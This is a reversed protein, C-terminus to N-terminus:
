VGELKDLVVSMKLYLEKINAFDRKLSFNQIGAKEEDAIIQSLRQILNEVYEMHDRLKEAEGYEGAKLMRKIEELSERDHPEIEYDKNADRFYQDPTKGFNNEYAM